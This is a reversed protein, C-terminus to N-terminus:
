LKSIFHRADEASGYVSVFATSVLVPRSVELAELTLSATVRALVEFPKGHTPAQMKPGCVQRNKNRAGGPPIYEDGDDGITPATRTAPTTTAQGRDDVDTFM